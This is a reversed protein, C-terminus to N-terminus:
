KKTTEFLRFYHDLLSKEKGRFRPSIVLSFYAENEPGGQVHFLMDSMLPMWVDRKKNLNQEQIMYQGNRINIKFVDLRDYPVSIKAFPLVRSGNIETDPPYQLASLDLKAFPMVGESDQSPLSKALAHLDFAYVTTFVTAPHTGGGPYSINQVYRGPNLSERRLSVLLNSGTQKAGKFKVLKVMYLTDDDFSYRFNTYDKVNSWASHRATSDVQSFDADKDSAAMYLLGYGSEDQQLSITIKIDRGPDFNNGVGMTNIIIDSAVRGIDKNFHSDGVEKDIVILVENALFEEASQSSTFDMEKLSIEKAGLETLEDLNLAPVLVM